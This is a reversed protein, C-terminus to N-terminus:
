TSRCTAGAWRLDDVWDKLELRIETADALGEDPDEREEQEPLVEGEGPNNRGCVSCTFARIRGGEESRRLLRRPQGADGEREPQPRLLDVLRAFEGTWSKTSTARSKASISSPSTSWSCRASSGCLRM